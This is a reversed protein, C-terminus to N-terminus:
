GCYANIIKGQKDLKLNVRGSLNDDTVKEDPRILRFQRPLSRTPVSKFEKGVLGKATKIDCSQSNNFNFDLKKGISQRVEQEQKKNAEATPQILGTETNTEVSTDTKRVKASTQSTIDGVTKDVKACAFLSSLIISSLLIRGFKQM